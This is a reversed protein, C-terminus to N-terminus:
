RFLALGREIAAEMKANKGYGSDGFVERSKTVLSIKHVIYQARAIPYLCLPNHEKAYDAFVALQREMELIIAHRAAHGKGNDKSRALDEMVGLDLAAVVRPLDHLERRVGTKRNHFYRVVGLDNQDADFNDIEDKIRQFKNELNHSFSVDVGMGLYADPKGEGIISGDAILVMDIGRGIDDVEATKFATFSPIWKGVNIGRIILFEAVEALNRVEGETLGGAAKQHETEAFKRKMRAVYRLDSAITEADHLESFNEPHASMKEMMPAIKAHMPLLKDATARIDEGRSRRDLSNMAAREPDM